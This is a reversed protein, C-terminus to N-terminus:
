RLYFIIVPNHTKENNENSLLSSIPSIEISGSMDSINETFHKNSNLVFPQPTDMQIKGSQLCISNSSFLLSSSPISCITDMFASDSSNRKNKQGLIQIFATKFTADFKINIKLVFVVKELNKNAAM